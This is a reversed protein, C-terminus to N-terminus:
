ERRAFAVLAELLTTEDEPPVTRLDVLLRDEAVRAVVPPNGSRLLAAMRDPRIAPHTIAIAVTPVGVTPASGGGVASQAEALTLELDPAKEGLRSLFAEARSRIEGLPARIM